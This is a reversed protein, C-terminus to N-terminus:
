KKLSLAMELAADMERLSLRRNVFPHHEGGNEMHEIIIYGGYTSNHDLSYEGNSYGPKKGISNLFFEFKKKLVKKSFKM